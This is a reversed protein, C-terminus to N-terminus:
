EPKASATAFTFLITPNPLSKKRNKEATTATTVTTVTTVTLIV